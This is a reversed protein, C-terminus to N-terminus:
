KKELADIKSSLIEIKKDQEATATVYKETYSPLIFWSQFIVSFILTALAIIGVVLVGILLGRTNEQDKAIRVIKEEAERLRTLDDIANDWQSSTSDKTSKSGFVSSLEQWKQFLEQANGGDATKSTKIAM